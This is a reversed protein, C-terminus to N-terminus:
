SGLAACIDTQKGASAVLTYEGTADVVQYAVRGVHLTTSPGAPHDTPYMFVVQHGTLVLMSTGEGLPRTTATFGNARLWVTAGNSVNTLLLESGLGAALTRVVMGDRDDFERYVKALGWAEAKLGFDACAIGPPFEFTLDAPDDAAVPGALGVLLSISALLAFGGVRRRSPGRM